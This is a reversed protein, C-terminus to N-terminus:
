IRLGSTALVAVLPRWYGPTAELLAQVEGTDLAQGSAEEGPLAAARTGPKVGLAPSAGPMPVGTRVPGTSM